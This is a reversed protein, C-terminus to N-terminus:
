DVARGHWAREERTTPLLNVSRGTRQVERSEEEFWGACGSLGLCVFVVLLVVVRMAEGEAGTKGVTPYPHAIGMGVRETETL